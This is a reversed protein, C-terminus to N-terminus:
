QYIVLAIKYAFVITIFASAQSYPNLGPFKLVRYQGVWSYDLLQLQNHM